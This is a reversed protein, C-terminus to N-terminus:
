CRNLYYIALLWRARLMNDGQKVEALWCCTDVDGFKHMLLLLLCLQTISEVRLEMFGQQSHLFIFVIILISAQYKFCQFTVRLLFLIVIVVGALIIARHGGGLLEEPLNRTALLTTGLHALALGGLEEGRM